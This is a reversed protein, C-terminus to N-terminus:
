IFFLIGLSLDRSQDLNQFDVLAHALQANLGQDLFVAQLHGIHFADVFVEFNLDLLEVSDLPM